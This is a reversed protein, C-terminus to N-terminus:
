RCWCYMCRLSIYKFYYYLYIDHWLCLEVTNNNQHFKHTMKNVFYIPAKGFVLFKQTNQVVIHKNRKRTVPKSDNTTPFLMVVTHVWFEEHILNYLWKFKNLHIWVMLLICIPALMKTPIPQSHSTHYTINM